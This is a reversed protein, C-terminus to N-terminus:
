KGRVCGNEDFSVTRTGHNHDSKYQYRVQGNQQSIREPKGLTSEVDARTMGAKIRGEIM